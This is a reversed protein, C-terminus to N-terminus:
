LYLKNLLTFKIKKLINIDIIGNLNLNLDKLYKFEVKELVSFDTIKNDSLNLEKIGKFKIKILWDLSENNAIKKRLDMKDIDVDYINVGLEQRFVKLLKYEEFDQKKISTISQIKKNYKIINLKKRKYLMSFICNLIFNSRIKRWM